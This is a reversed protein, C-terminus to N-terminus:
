SYDSLQISIEKSIYGAKEVQMRYDRGVPLHIRNRGNLSLFVTM